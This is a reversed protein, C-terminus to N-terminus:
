TEHGISSKESEDFFPPSVGPTRHLAIVAETPRSTVPRSSEWRGGTTWAEFSPVVYAGPGYYPPILADMNPAAFAATCIPHHTSAGDPFLMKKFRFPLDGSERASLNLQGLDSISGTEAIKKNRAYQQRELATLYVGNALYGGRLKSLWQGLQELELSTPKESKVKKPTKARKSPNCRTKRKIASTPPLNSQFISALHNTTLQMRDIAMETVPKPHSKPDLGEVAPLLGLMSAAKPAEPTPNALSSPASHSASDLVLARVFLETETVTPCETTLATPVRLEILTTSARRKTMKVHESTMKAISECCEDLKGDPIIYRGGEDKIANQDIKLSELYHEIRCKM